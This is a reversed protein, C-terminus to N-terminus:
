CSSCILTETLFSVSIDYTLSNFTDTVHRVERSDSRLGDIDSERGHKRTSAKPPSHLNLRKRSTKPGADQHLARLAAAEEPMRFLSTQMVHMKQADVGLRQAWPIITPDGDLPGRTRAEVEHAYRIEGDEGQVLANSKRVAPEARATARLEDEDMESSSSESTSAESESVGEEVSEDEEIPEEVPKKPPSPKSPLPRTPREEEDDSSSSESTYARFRAM